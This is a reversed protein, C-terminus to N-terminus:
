FPRRTGLQYMLNMSDTLFTFTKQEAETRVEPIKLLSNNGPTNKERSNKSFHESFNIPVIGKHCKFVKLVCLRNRKCTVTEWTNNRERNGLAVKHARDQIKQFRVATSDSVRLMVSNCYFLLSMFSM